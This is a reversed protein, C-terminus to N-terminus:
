SPEEKSGGALLKEKSESVSEEWPSRGKDTKWDPHEVGEPSTGGSPRRGKGKGTPENGSSDEEEQAEGGTKYKEDDDKITLPDACGAERDEQDSAQIEQLDEGDPGRKPYHLGM